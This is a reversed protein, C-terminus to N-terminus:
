GELEAIRALLEREDFVENESKDYITILYVRQNVVKVCTIIRAGASKGKSKSSIALRIKYCDPRILIGQTPNTKLSEVLHFLDNKLSPYKKFLPKADKRFAEVPVVEFEM